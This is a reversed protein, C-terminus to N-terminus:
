SPLATTRRSRRPRQRIVLGGGIGLMALALGGAAGIGADGWDFGNEPTQVRVVAQPATAKAIDGGNPTSVRTMAKNPRSYVSAPPTYLNATAQTGPPVYDAPRASAAPASAAALSLIVAATTSIRHNTMEVQRRNAQGIAPDSRNAALM